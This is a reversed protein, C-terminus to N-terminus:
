LPHAAAIRTENINSMGGQSPLYYRVISFIVETRHFILIAMRNEFPIDEVPRMSRTLGPECIGNLSAM